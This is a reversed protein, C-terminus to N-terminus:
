ELHGYFGYLFGEAENQSLLKLAAKREGQKLYLDAKEKKSVFYVRKTAPKLDKKSPLVEKTVGEM